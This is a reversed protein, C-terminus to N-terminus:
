TFVEFCDSFVLWLTLSAGSWKETVYLVSERGEVWWDSRTQSFISKIQSLGTRSATSCHWVICFRCVARPLWLLLPTPMPCPPLASSSIKQQSCEVADSLLSGVDQLHYGHFLCYVVFMRSTTTMSLSLLGVGQMHYDHFLCYIRCTTTM